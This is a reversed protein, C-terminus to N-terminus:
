GKSNILYYDIDSADLRTGLVKNIDELIKNDTDVDVELKSFDIDFAGGGEFSDLECGLVNDDTLYEGTNYMDIDLVGEYAHFLDFIDYDCKGQDLYVGRVIKTTNTYSM